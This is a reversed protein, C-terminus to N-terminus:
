KEEEEKEFEVETENNKEADPKKRAAQTFGNIAESIVSIISPTEQRDLHRQKKEISYGFCGAAVLSIFGFFMYEPLVFGFFQQGIWGATVMLVMLATTLERMNFFGNKDKFIEKIMPSRKTVKQNQQNM